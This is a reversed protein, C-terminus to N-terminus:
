LLLVAALARRKRRLRSSAQGGRPGNSRLAMGPLPHADAGNQRIVSFLEGVTEKTQAFPRLPFCSNSLSQVANSMSCLSTRPKAREPSFREM